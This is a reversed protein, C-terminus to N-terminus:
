FSLCRSNSFPVSLYREYLASIIKFSVMNLPIPTKRKRLCDVIQFGYSSVKRVLHASWNVKPDSFKRGGNAGWTRNIMLELGLIFLHLALRDRASGTM